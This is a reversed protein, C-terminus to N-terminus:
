GRVWVIGLRTGTDHSAAAAAITTLATSKTEVPMPDANSDHRTAGVDTRVGKPPAAAAVVRVAAAVGGHWECRAWRPGIIMVAGPVRDLEFYTILSQRHRRCVTEEGGVRVILLALRAAGLAAPM